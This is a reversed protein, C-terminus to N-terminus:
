AQLSLDDTTMYILTIHSSLNDTTGSNSAWYDPSFDNVKSFLQELFILISLILRRCLSAPIKSGPNYTPTYITNVVIFKILLM